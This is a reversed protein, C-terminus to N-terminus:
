IKVKVKEHFDYLDIDEILEELQKNIVKGNNENVCITSYSVTFINITTKIGSYITSSYLLM